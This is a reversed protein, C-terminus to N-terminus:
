EEPVRFTVRWGKFGIEIRDIRVILRNVLAGDLRAALRRNKGTTTMEPNSDEIFVTDETVEDPM